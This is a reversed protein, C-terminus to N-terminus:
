DTTIGHLLSGVIADIHATTLPRGQLASYSTIALLVDALATADTDSRVEGVAKAAEIRRAVAAVIPGAFRRNLSEGVTPNTATVAILARALQTNATMALHDTSMSLWNRLDASLDDTTALADTFGPLEGELLAEGLIEAKSPWWRYITQKSVGASAAIGEVTIADYGDRALMTRMAGLVAQRAKESRPRAM